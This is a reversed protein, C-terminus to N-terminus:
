NNIIVNSRDSFLTELLFPALLKNGYSLADVYDLFNYIFFEYKLGTKQDITKCIFKKVIKPSKPNTLLLRIDRKNPMFFGFIDYDSKDNSCCYSRSGAISLSCLNKTIVKPIVIKNQKCIQQLTIMSIIYWRMRTKM